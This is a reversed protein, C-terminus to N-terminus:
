QKGIIIKKKAHRHIVIAYKEFPKLYVLYLVLFLSIAQIKGHISFKHDTAFSHIFLSLSLEIQVTCITCCRQILM